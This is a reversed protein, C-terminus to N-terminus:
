HGFTGLYDISPYYYSKSIKTDQKVSNYYYLDKKIEPHNKIIENLEVLINGMLASSFFLSLLLFTRIKLVNGKLLILYIIAYISM